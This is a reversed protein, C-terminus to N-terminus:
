VRVVEALMGVAGAPPQVEGAGAQHDEGGDRREGAAAIGQEPQQRHHPVAEGPDAVEVELLVPRRGELVREVAQGAVEHHVLVHPAALDAELGTRPTANREARRPQQYFRWGNSAGPGKRRREMDLACCNSTITMPPPWAPVSAASADARMPRRVRSSVWFMSVRPWIDQLGAMPPM